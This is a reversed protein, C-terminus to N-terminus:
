AGPRVYTLDMSPDVVAATLPPPQIVTLVPVTPSQIIISKPEIIVM